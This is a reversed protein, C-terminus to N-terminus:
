TEVIANALVFFEQKGMKTLRGVKDGIKLKM